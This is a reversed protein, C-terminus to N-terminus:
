FYREESAVEFPKKITEEDDHNYPIYIDKGADHKGALELRIADIDENTRPDTIHTDYGIVLALLEGKSAISKMEEKLTQVDKSTDESSQKQMSIVPEEEKEALYVSFPYVQENKNLRLEILDFAVNYIKELEPTM